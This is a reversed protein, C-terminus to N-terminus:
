QGPNTAFFPALKEVLAPGFHAQPNSPTLHDMLEWGQILIRAHNFASEFDSGPHLSQRFFADGFFTWDREPACGFSTNKADAATIVITNDNALPPVFIGAFCASVIVARNRIGERDLASALQDPTLETAGEPLQLAFGSQEGHSTMLLVLVDNDKNMVTGIAHVAAAFNQLNALPVTEITDRNNILRLTRNRIPLVSALAELGGDLEKRFVDQEGWGAVGLAYIETEGKRSPALRAAESQLLAPQSKELRAIDIRPAAGNADHLAHLVEWWNAERM